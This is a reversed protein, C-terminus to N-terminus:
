YLARANGQDSQAMASPYTGMGTDGAYGPQFTGMEASSMRQQEAHPGGYYQGGSSGGSNKGLVCVCIVVGVGVCCLLLCCGGAAFGAIVATSSFDIGGISMPPKPADTQVVKQGQSTQQNPNAGNEKICVNNIADCRLSVACRGNDCPCDQSGSICLSPGLDFCKQMQCVLPPNCSGDPKCPNALLM